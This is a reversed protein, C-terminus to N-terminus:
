SPNASGPLPAVRRHSRPPPPACRAARAIATTMALEAVRPGPGDGGRVFATCGVGETVVPDHRKGASWDVLDPVIALGHSARGRWEADLVEAVCAETESSTFGQAVLATSVLDRAETHTLLM